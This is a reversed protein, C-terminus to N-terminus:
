AVAQVQQDTKIANFYVEAPPQDAFEEAHLTELLRAREDPSLKRPSHRRRRPGQKPGSSQGRYLTARSLGLADCAVVIPITLDRGRIAAM